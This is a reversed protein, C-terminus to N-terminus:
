RVRGQDRSDRSRRGKVRGLSSNNARSRCRMAATTYDTYSAGPRLEVGPRAATCTDNAATTTSLCVSDGSASPNDHPAYYLVSRSITDSTVVVTWTNSDCEVSYDLPVDGEERYVPQTLGKSGEARAVGAAFLLLLGSIAFYRM